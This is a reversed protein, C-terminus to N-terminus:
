AKEGAADFEARSVQGYRDSDLAAFRARTQEVQVAREREIEAVLRHGGVLPSPGSANQASAASSLLLTAVCASALVTTKM